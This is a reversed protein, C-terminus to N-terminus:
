AFALRVRELFARGAAIDPESQFLYLRRADLHRAMWALEAETFHRSWCTVMLHTHRQILKLSSALSELGPGAPDHSIEVARIRPHPAIWQALSPGSGGSHLHYIASDLAELLHCEGPWIFDRFWEPRCMVMLDASLTAGRGPMWSLGGVLGGDHLPMRSLLATIVQRWCAGLHATAACVTEPCEALDMMLEQTGRLAAFLDSLGSAHVMKLALERQSAAAEIRRGLERYLPSQTNVGCQLADPLRALIPQSWSTGGRHEVPVGLLAPLTEAENCIAVQPVTDDKFAARSRWEEQHERLSWHEFNAVPEPLWVSVLPGQDLTGNWFSKIRDAVM